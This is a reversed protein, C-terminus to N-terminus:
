QAAKEEAAIDAESRFTMVAVKSIRFEPVVVEMTGGKELLSIYRAETGRTPLQFETWRKGAPDYRMIADSTWMNTWVRHGKDVTVHYPQQSSPNPLFVYSTEMTRTDIRALNGGWSDGVWLVDGAKDTGMRRPGEAWPMPANFDPSVFSAYFTKEAPTVLEKQAEIPALTVPTSAGTKPDGKNVIDIIMEAWWGNGDRDAALGYTLGSGNATKYTPSKFETFTEAKPDFRLAGIPSSAWINGQGDYDVTTAGGTPSMGEPPIYVTIKATKPDLRCLGGKGTNCNFWLIGSQDRTMGHAFAAVGNQGEVKYPTVAGTKADIRAVTAHHNPTNVTFWLNGDLDAWADHLIAGGHSPTGKSWDSGDNTVTKEVGLEPDIPIDYETFVVRAAEGTPRPPIKFKMSTAGPGRARALYAALEKEHFDLIGNPKADAPIHQGFVNINKMTDIIATWGKEDFRHQLPYSPTHCGTCDNRVIRQMRADDPTETPLSALLVDGPLQRTFDAMPKLTFDQHRNAALDVEGKATAFTLAQAWVRYKGPQLAPFVYHGAADTFVTTTVNKGDEKASVTVGGMAAGGASKITGSLMADTGAAGAPAAALLAAVSASALLLGAARAKHM